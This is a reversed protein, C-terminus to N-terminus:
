RFFLYNFFRYWLYKRGRINVNEYCFCAIWSLSSPHIIDCTKQAELKPRYPRTAWPFKVGLGECIRVHVERNMRSRDAMRRFGWLRLGVCFSIRNRGTEQNVMVRQSSVWGRRELGMVSGEVSSSSSGDRHKADTSLNEHPRWKFRKRLMSVVPEWTRCLLWSWTWAMEIGSAVWVIFLSGRPKDQPDGLVGTKVVDWINRCRMLPESTSM